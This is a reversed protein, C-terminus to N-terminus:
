KCYPAAHKCRAGNLYEACHRTATNRRSQQKITFSQDLLKALKGEEGSKCQVTLWEGGVTSREAWTVLEHADPNISQLSSRWNGPHVSARCWVELKRERSPVQQWLPQNKAKVVTIPDKAQKQNSRRKNRAKRSEDHKFFCREGFKCHGDKEINRCPTNSKVANVISAMPAENKQGVVPCSLEKLTAKIVRRREADALQSLAGPQKSKLYKVISDQAEEAEKGIKFRALESGGKKKSTALYYHGRKLVAFVRVMKDIPGKPLQQLMAPHIAVKVEVDSAKANISDAHVVVIEVSTHWLALALEVIGGWKDSSLVQDIIDESSKGIVEQWQTVAFQAANAEGIEEAFEGMKALMECHNNALCEKAAAVQKAGKEAIKSLDTGPHEALQLAAGALQYACKGFREMSKLDVEQEDVEKQEEDVVVISAQGKAAEHTPNAAGPRATLMSLQQSMKDVQRSLDTLERTRETPKNRENDPEFMRMIARAVIQANVPKTGFNPAQEDKGDSAAQSQTAERAGTMAEEVYALCMAVIEEEDEPWNKLSTGHVKVAKEAAKTLMAVRALKGVKVRKVSADNSMWKMFPFTTVQPKQPEQESPPAGNAVAYVKDQLNGDLFTLTTECGEDEEETGAVLFADAAHQFSAANEDVKLLKALYGIKTTNNKPGHKVGIVVYYWKGAVLTSRDVPPFYKPVKKLVKEEMAPFMGPPTPLFGMEEVPVSDM